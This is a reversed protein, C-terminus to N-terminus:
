PHSPPTHSSKSVFPLFARVRTRTPTNTPLPTNTPAPTDTPLPTSTATPNPTNTPTPTNTVTPTDTPLPTKTATPTPTSTPTLTPQTGGTYEYAGIDPASGFLVVNGMSDKYLYVPDSNNWNRSQTLTITNTDYDISSIQVPEQNGIKIWDADVIGFGDSFYLADEVTIQTGGGPGLAKTLSNGADILPSDLRPHFDYNEEDVFRPDIEVNGAFNAPYNSQWWALPHAGLSQHEIVNEGPSQSIINNNLFRNDDLETMMYFYIQSPYRDPTSPDKDLDRRNQFLVNNKFINGSLNMTTDYKHFVIGADGGRYFVNNYVRNDNANPCAMSGGYVQFDLGGGQNEYFVNRRLINHDSSFQLGAGFRWEGGRFVNFSQAFVNGEWLNRSAPSAGGDAYGINVDRYWNNQFHNGRIVNFSGRVDLVGHVGEEFRNGEILNYNCGIDLKLADTGGSEDVVLEGHHYFLNGILENFSSQYLHFGMRDKTANRMTCNRVIIHTSYVVEGWQAQGNGEIVLGDVIIHDHRIISIAIGSSLDLIVEEGPYAAYTIYNGETGSRSPIISEQYTGARIHVTDGSQLTNNAKQITRWPQSETGPNSDNGDTAM